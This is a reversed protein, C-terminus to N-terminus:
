NSTPMYYPKIKYYFGLDEERASIIEVNNGNQDKGNTKKSGITKYYCIYGEKSYDPKTEMKKDSVFGYSNCLDSDNTTLMTGHTPVYWYVQAEALAENGGLL